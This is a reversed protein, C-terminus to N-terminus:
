ALPIGIGNAQLHSLVGEIGRVVVAHMGLSQAAEANIANDDYFLVQEPKLGLSALVYEFCDADPKIKGILHSAFHHDLHKQLEMEEMLRPWHLSSTNSLCALRFRQKLNQLMEPVGAYLGRPWVTFAALFQEPGVTLQMEVIIQEAFENASLQGTEFARVGPSHLWRQWLSKEDLALTSWELMAPVGQLEVLVGGLDFVIAKINNLAMSSNLYRM